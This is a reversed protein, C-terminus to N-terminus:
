ETADRSSFVQLGDKSRKIMYPEKWGDRLFDDVDRPAIFGSGAVCERVFKPGEPGTLQQFTFAGREVELELIDQLRKKGEETRFKKGKDLTGKLNYSLVGGVIGILLIVIMMELLTVARKRM